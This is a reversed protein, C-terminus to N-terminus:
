KRLVSDLILHGASYGLDFITMVIRMSEDMFEDDSKVGIAWERACTMLSTALGDTETEARTTLEAKCAELSAHLSLKRRMKATFARDHKAPPEPTTSHHTSV